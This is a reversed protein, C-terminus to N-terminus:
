PTQLSEKSTTLWMECLPRTARAPCLPNSISFPTTTNNNWQQPPEEFDAIIDSPPMFPVPPIPLWHTPELNTNNEEELFGGCWGDINNTWYCVQPMMDDNAFCCLVPTEDLPATEIPQWGTLRKVEREVLIKILKNNDQNLLKEESM